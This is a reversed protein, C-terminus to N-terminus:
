HASSAISAVRDLALRLGAVLEGSTAPRFGAPDIGFASLLSKSGSARPEMLPARASSHVQRCGTQVILHEVNDPRINGAPLVEIERGAQQVLRALVNAGDRATQAQGSSLVREFGFKKLAELSQIPNNLLDYARHFVSRGQAVEVLKRCRDQDIAGETLLGFVLGSAGERMFQEADRLMVEFETETYDFGGPRPRLLVYVPLSVAERIRLFTHLSPTLGGLELGSSLELRNAGNKAAILAEDPTSVAIELTLITSGQVRSM